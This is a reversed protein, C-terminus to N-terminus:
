QAVQALQGPEPEALERNTTMMRWIGDVERMELGNPGQTEDFTVEHRLYMPKRGTKYDGNVHYSHVVAYRTNWARCYSGIQWQWYIPLPKAASRWTLKFEHVELGRTGIQVADPTMYIGDVCLEGPHYLMGPHQKVIWDEWALGAAIRCLIDSHGGGLAGNSGYQSILYDLPMDEEDFCKLKIALPRIIGSLHVGPSRAQANRRLDLDGWTTTIHSM